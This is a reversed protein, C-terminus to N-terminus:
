LIGERYTISVTGTGTVIIETESDTLIFDDFQTEANAPVNYTKGNATITVASSSLFKPKVPMQSNSLTALTGGYSANVTVTTETSKFKYPYAIMEMDTKFKFRESKLSGISVRGEYYYNENSLIMRCKEGNFLRNLENYAQMYNRSVILLECKIRRDKYSKRGFVDSLDLSGDRYPVNVYVTYPEALGVNYNRVWIDLDEMLDYVVSNKILKLNLM